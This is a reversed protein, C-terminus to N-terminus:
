GLAQEGIAAVEMALRELNPEASSRIQQSLGAVEADFAISFWEPEGKARLLAALTMAHKWGLFAFGNPLNPNCAKYLSSASVGVMDAVQERGLRAMADSIAYSTTAFPKSTTM